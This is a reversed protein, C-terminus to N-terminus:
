PLNMQVHGGEPGQGSPKKIKSLRGNAGEGSQMSARHSRNKYM